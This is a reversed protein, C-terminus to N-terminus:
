EKLLTIIISIIISLITLIVGLKEYLTMSPERLRRVEPQSTPEGPGASPSLTPAYIAEFTSVDISVPEGNSKLRSVISIIDKENIGLQQALFSIKTRMGECSKLILILKSPARARKAGIIFLPIGIMAVVPGLLVMFALLVAYWSYIMDEYTIINLNYMEVKVTIGLLGIVILLVGLAMLIKGKRKTGM